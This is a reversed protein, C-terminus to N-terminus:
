GCFEGRLEPSFDQITVRNPNIKRWARAVQLKHLRDISVKAMQLRMAFNRCPAQLASLKPEAGVAETLKEDRDIAFRQLLQVPSKLM